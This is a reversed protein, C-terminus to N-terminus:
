ETAKELAKLIIKGKPSKLFLFGAGPVSNYIKTIMDLAMELAELLDPAAAILKANEENRETNYDFCEIIKPYNM